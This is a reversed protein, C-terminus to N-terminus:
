KRIDPPYDQPCIQEGPSWAFLKAVDAQSLARDFIRPEDIDGSFRLEYRETLPESTGIYYPADEHDALAGTYDVPSSSVEQGNVYLSLKKHAEDAVMVLHHWNGPEFVNTSVETATGDALRIVGKFRSDHEYYLGTYERVLISYSTDNPTLNPPVRDPKVWAGFTYGQDTLNNLSASNGITVHDDVGDFKLGGCFKGSTWVPGPKDTYVLTGHNGYSATDFVVEGTGEDFTWAGVLGSVGTYLYSAQTNSIITNPAEAQDLINNVTIQYQGNLHESTALTVTKLDSGLVAGRVTIGKDITYNEARVASDQEVPEDFKVQVQNLDDGANVSAIRPSSKDALTTTVVVVSRPGEVGHYNFASVEYSYDTLETLDTDSFTWGKVTALHLGDRFIEYM